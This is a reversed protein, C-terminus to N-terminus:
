NGKITAWIYILEQVVTRWHILGLCAWAAKYGRVWEVQARHTPFNEEMNGAYTERQKCTQSISSYTQKRTAGDKGQLACLLPWHHGNWPTNIFIHRLSAFIIMSLQPQCTGHCGQLVDLSLPHPSPPNSLKQLVSAPFSSHLFVLQVTHNLKFIFRVGSPTSM